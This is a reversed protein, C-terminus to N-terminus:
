LWEIEKLYKYLIQYLLILHFLIVTFLLSVYVCLLDSGNIFNESFLIGDENLKDSKLEKVSKM